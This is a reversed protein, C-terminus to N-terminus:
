QCKVILTIEIGFRIIGVDFFSTNPTNIRQCTCVTCRRLCKIRVTAIDFTNSTIGAFFVARSQIYLFCCIILISIGSGTRNDLCATGHCPFIRNAIGSMRHQFVNGDVIVFLTGDRTWFMCQLDALTHCTGFCSSGFWALVGVDSCNGSFIRHAFLDVIRVRAVVITAIGGNTVAYPDVGVLVTNLIGAFNTHLINLNMQIFVTM